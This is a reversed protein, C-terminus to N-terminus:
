AVAAAAREFAEDSSAFRKVVMHNPDILKMQSMYRTTPKGLHVSCTILNALTDPDKSDKNIAELLEKEADDFNGMRMHCVASGNYLRTTWNNRDGLEQYIYQADQVKQGGLALNTWAHALQTLTADDDMNSMARVQKEAQDVRDMKLYVQVCLAMQELSRGHHCAKLADIYNEEGCYIFGAVISVLPNANSAADSLWDAITVLASDKDTRGSLYAALLKVALMGTAANDSIEALVIDYQGMGIYSRYVLADREQEETESLGETLDSAENIAAQFAGLYFNNRVAFLLDAM